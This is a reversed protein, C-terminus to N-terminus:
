AMAWLVAAWIAAIFVAAIALRQLVSARLISPAIAAPPHAAGHAHHHHAQHPQTSMRIGRHRPTQDCYLMARRWHWPPCTLASILFPRDATVFM